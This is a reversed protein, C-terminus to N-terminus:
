RPVIHGDTSGAFQIETIEPVGYASTPRLFSVTFSSVASRDAHICHFATILKEDIRHKGSYIYTCPLGNAMKEEDHVVLYEGRLLADRLKVTEAFEVVASEVRVAAGSRGSPLTAGGALMLCFLAFSITITRKM